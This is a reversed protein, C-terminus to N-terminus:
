TRSGLVPLEYLEAVYRFAPGDVNREERLAPDNASPDLGDDARRNWFAWCRGVETKSRFSIGLPLSGDALVLARVHEAVTTTLARDDSALLGSHLAAGGRYGLQYLDVALAETLAAHTMPHDIAVWWGQTPMEARYISRHMQWDCPVAWPVDRGNNQAETTVAELYEEYSVGAAEADPAIAVRTRRFGQLVEAFAVEASDAFYVTRGLTDFHGRDEIVDAPLPGVHVNERASNVGGSRVYRDKTVRYGDEGRAPLLYVGTRTCVQGGSITSM